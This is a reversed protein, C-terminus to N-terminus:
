AGSINNAWSGAIVAEPSVITRFWSGGERVAFPLRVLVGM